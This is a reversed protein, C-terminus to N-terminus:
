GRALEVQLAELAKGWAITGADVMKNDLPAALMSAMKSVADEVAKIRTALASGKKINLLQKEMASLWCIAITSVLTNIQKDDIEIDVRLPAPEHKKYSVKGGKSVVKEFLETAM